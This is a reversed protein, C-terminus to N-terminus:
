QDLFSELNLFKTNNFSKFQNPNHSVIFKIGKLKAIWSVTKKASLPDLSATPEDLLIVSSNSYNKSFLVRLLCIRHAEGGSINNSIDELLLLDRIRKKSLGIEFLKNIIRTTDNKYNVTKSLLINDILSARFIFSEQPIYIMEDELFPNKIQKSLKNDWKFINKLLTTKGVGSAGSFVGIEDFGISLPPVITYRNKSVQFQFQDWEIIKKENINKKRTKKTEISQKSLPYELYSIYYNVSNKVAFISLLLSTIRGLSLLIRYLSFIITGLNSSFSILNWHILLVLLSISFLLFVEVKIKQLIPILILKIQDYELKRFKRRLNTYLWNTDVIPLLSIIGKQIIESDRSIDERVISENINKTSDSITILRNYIYILSVIILFAGLYSNLKLLLFLLFVFVIGETIFDNLQVMYRWVINETETTIVRSLDKQKIKSRFKNRLKSIAVSSNITYDYPM